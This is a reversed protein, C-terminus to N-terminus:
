AAWITAPAGAGLGADSANRPDADSALWERVLFSDKATRMLHLNRDGGRVAVSRGDGAILVDPQRVQLAWAIAIALAVAGAWRQPSRLLGMLVIGISAAILPGIGFAAIRGVAGPLAAMWRTVAVMWDIGIGMLWWFAGDLGFPAAVLGLLGAPM